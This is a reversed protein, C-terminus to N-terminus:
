NPFLLTIAFRIGWEPGDKPADFYYRGGFQFQVPLKGVRVLQSFTANVPVTWEENTWNYTSETNLGFTTGTKLTYSIFPQLFTSNVDPVDDDGAVKWLHNVLGGFTLTGEGLPVQRLAVATPGLGVQKSRFLDGTGTPILAAPGVGLIWGGVPEKPSFFFSQTTDGLGFEDEVGEVPGEAYVIPVITRSILNWQESLHFPIVPQVNITIKDKDEDPGIGTDWNFQFPVSILDAVPNQLKTALNHESEASGEAEGPSAHGTADETPKIEAEAAGEAKKQASETSQFYEFSLRTEAFHGTDAASRPMEDLLQALRTRADVSPTEPAGQVSTTLGMAILSICVAKSIESTTSEM